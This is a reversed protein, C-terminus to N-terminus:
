CSLSDLPIRNPQPQLNLNPRSQLCNSLVNDIQLSSPRVQQLQRMLEPDGLIQLRMMESDQEATRCALCQM